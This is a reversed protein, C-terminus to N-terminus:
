NYSIIEVFIPTTGLVDVMDDYVFTEDYVYLDIVSTTSASYSLYGIIGVGDTIPTAITSTGSWNLAQNIMTKNVTFANALTAQYWGGMMRSWVITGSFTNELVTAVPAATGTQTLIARYVKYTPASPTPLNDVTTELANFADQIENFTTDLDLQKFYPRKNDDLNLPM